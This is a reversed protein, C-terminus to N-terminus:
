ETFEHQLSRKTIEGRLNEQVMEKVKNKPYNSLLWALKIYATEPLMDSYDGLVGAEKLKRGYTYVNMNVRGYITQSTMVVPLKQCLQTITKLIKNHEKTAEDIVDVPGNGLGTGEIILGDFTKYHELEKAYFNPRFKVMGIKLTEKIPKIKVKKNKDKKTYNKNFHNITGQKSVTAYPDTSIARFTDRRSTHMKRTKTAPLIVCSEDSSDEHMCIGVEGFDSKTIYQAACLLNLAADSSGRDSSRQSGVLLIPMSLGELIFSLAAATYGMTDTGHTVIIGDVGKALEKKIEKAIYNHHYFRMDGSWMNSLLRSNINAIKRLEPFLDLLEEPTFKASVGGTAYDIKSAITGGTHLISITPLKNNHKQKIKKLKPELSKECAKANKKTKKIVQMKKVDKKFIGVNYGSKLKLIIKKSDSNPMLLGKYKQDKTEVEVEDCSHLLTKKGMTKNLKCRM